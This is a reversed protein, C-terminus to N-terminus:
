IANNKETNLDKVEETHKENDLKLENNNKSLSKNEKEREKIEKELNKIQEDKNDLKDLMQLDNESKEVCQLREIAHNKETKLDKVEETHKENDLKLENNNKSLSKNEKERGM